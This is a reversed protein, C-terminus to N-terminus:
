ENREWEEILKDVEHKYDRNKDELEGVDVGINLARYDWTYSKDEFEDPNWM